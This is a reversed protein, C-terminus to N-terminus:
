QEDEPRPPEDGYQKKLREAEEPNKIEQDIWNNGHSGIGLNGWYDHYILTLVTDPPVPRDTRYSDLKVTGEEWGRPTLHWTWYENSLAM